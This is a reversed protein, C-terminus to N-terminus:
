SGFLIDAKYQQDFCMDLFFYDFPNGPFFSDYQDQLMSVTKTINVTNIKLAFLALNHRGQPMLRFIHPEFDQKPSQQHYDKIVGIITYINGWYDVQQGIAEESSKFGMWRIATENFILAEKDTAYEKSFNRGAAFAVKFVKIGLNIEIRIIQILAPGSKGDLYVTDVGVVGFPVTVQLRIIKEAGFLIRLHAKFAGCHGM